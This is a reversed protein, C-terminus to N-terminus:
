LFRGALFVAAVVILFAILVRRERDARTLGGQRAWGAARLAAYALIAILVLPVTKALLAPM